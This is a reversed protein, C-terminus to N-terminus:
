PPAFQAWSNHKFSDQLPCYDNYNVFTDDKTRGLIICHFNETQPCNLNILKNYIIYPWVYRENYLWDM